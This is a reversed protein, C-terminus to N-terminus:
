RSLWSSFSTSLVMARVNKWTILPLPNFPSLEVEDGPDERFHLFCYQFHCLGPSRCSYLCFARVFLNLLTLIIIVSFRSGPSSTPSLQLKQNIETNAPSVKSSYM